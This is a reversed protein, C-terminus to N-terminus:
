KSEKKEEEKEQGLIGTNSITKLRRHRVTAQAPRKM